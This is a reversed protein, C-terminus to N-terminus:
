AKALSQSVAKNELRGETNYETPGIKGGRLIGLATEVQLRNLEVIGGITLNEMHCKEGSAALEQWLTQLKGQEQVPQQDIFANIDALGKEFGAQKLVSDTDTQLQELEAILPQKELQLAQLADTDRKKLIEKETQFLNFLQSFLALEREFLAYIQQSSSM